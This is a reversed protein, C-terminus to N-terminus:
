FLYVLAIAAKSPIFYTGSKEEVFEGCNKCESVDYNAWVASGGLQFEINWRTAIPLQYGFDLGGGFAIGEIKNKRVSPVGLHYGVFIGHLGMFWGRYSESWWYRVQPRVALHQLRYKEIRFPNVSLDAHASWNRNITMSLEPNITLGGFALVNMSASYFQAQACRVNGLLLIAGIVLLLKLRKM